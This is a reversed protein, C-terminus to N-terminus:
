DNSGQGKSRNLKTLAEVIVEKLPRGSDIAYKACDEYEPQANIIQGNLDKAIKIRVKTEGLMVEQWEREAIKRIAFHSRVGLSTTQTLIIEELKTQDLPRCLVKLLHGSRGKKMVAPLVLVDLAGAAFLRDMAFSLAQPSLDDLSAELTVIAESNFTLTTETEALRSNKKEDGNAARDHQTDGILVRSVNPFEFPDFTGAGYGVSEIRVLNPAQWGSAITSLIAAGTPTLCEHKFQADSIAAQADSLLLVVAPAPIPLTGHETHIIGNGLPLPSVYSRELGLLHYGVAFGVIDVMADIAGVEHFEVENISLGHVKAEAAGLRTFIKSALEKAASLIKAKEILALIEALKRRTDNHPHQCHHKFCPHEQAHHLHAHSHADPSHEHQREQRPSRHEHKEKSATGHELEAYGPEYQRNIGSFVNVKKCAISCRIVDEIEIALNDTPLDFKAMEQRWLDEPLGAAFLAGLLMDGAAGFQCDFYAIKM